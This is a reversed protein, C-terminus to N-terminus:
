DGHQAAGQKNLSEQKARRAEVAKASRGREMELVRGALGSTLQGSASKGGAKQAAKAYAVYWGLTTNPAGPTPDGFLM